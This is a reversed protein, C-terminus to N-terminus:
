SSKAQRAKAIAEKCADSVETKHQKLCQVIRGGGPQIGPCLKEIDAACASRLASAGQGAAASTAPSEDAIAGGATLAFSLCLFLQSAQM